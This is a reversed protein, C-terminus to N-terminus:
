GIQCHTQYGESKDAGNGPHNRRTTQVGDAPLPGTRQFFGGIALQSGHAFDLFPLYALIKGLALPVQAHQALVDPCDIRIGPLIQGADLFALALLHLLQERLHPLLRFRQGVAVRHPLGILVELAIVIVAAGPGVTRQVHGRIFVNLHRVLPVVLERHVHILVAVIIDEEDARGVSM